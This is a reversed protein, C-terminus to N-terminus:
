LLSCLSFIMFSILFSVWASASVIAFSATSSVFIPLTYWLIKFCWRTASLVRPVASRSVRAKAPSLPKVSISIAGNPIIPAIVGEVLGLQVTIQLLIQISAPPLPTRKLGWGCAFLIEAYATSRTFLATRAAPPGSFITAVTALGVISVDFLITFSGDTLISTAVPPGPTTLISREEPLFAIPAPAPLGGTTTSSVASIGFAAFSIISPQVKSLLRGHIASFSHKTRRLTASSSIWWISLFPAYRMFSACTLCSSSTTRTQDFGFFSPSLGLRTIM